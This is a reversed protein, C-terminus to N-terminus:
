PFLANLDISVGPLSAPQVVGGHYVTEVYSGDPQRRRASSTREHPHLRWIELDGRRQYEPLKRDVDYEGTSPSWVEVVLPLPEDFVEFTDADELRRHVLERPIICVDPVFFSGTSIRLRANDTAVVFRQRDLQDSLMEGLERFIFNHRATMAPKRVLRGCYLEWHGDPDLLAVQKYLADPIPM